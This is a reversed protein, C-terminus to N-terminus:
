ALISTVFDRYSLKGKTCFEKTIQKVEKETIERKGILDSVQAVLENVNMQGEGSKDFVSFLDGTDDVSPKACKGLAATFDAQSLTAKGASFGQTLTLFFSSFFHKAM